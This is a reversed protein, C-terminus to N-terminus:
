ISFPHKGSDELSALHLAVQELLPDITMEQITHPPNWDFWAFGEHETPSISVDSTLNALFITLRKWKEENNYRKLRVNYEHCFSFDPDISIDAQGIGTEEELERLACQMDTEGADVHGKPLDWRSRHKMLLFAPKPHSRLILFGCSEVDPQKSESM